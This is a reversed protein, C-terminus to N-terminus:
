IDKTDVNMKEVIKKRHEFKLELYEAFHNDDTIEDSKKFPSERRQCPQDFDVKKKMSNYWSATNDIMKTIM